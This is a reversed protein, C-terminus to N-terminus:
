VTTVIIKYFINGELIIPLQKKKLIPLYIFFYYTLLYHTVSIITLINYPM